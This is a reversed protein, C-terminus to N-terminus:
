PATEEIPESAYPDKKAAGWNLLLWRAILDLVSTARPVSPCGTWGDPAFRMRRMQAVVDEVSEGCQLRVSISTALANAMGRLLSGARDLVIFVEGLRGDPYVSATIYGKVEDQAAIERALDLMMPLAAARAAEGIGANTLMKDYRDRLWAEDISQAKFCFRETKGFRTMPLSERRHHPQWPEAPAPFGTRLQNVIYAGEVKDLWARAADGVLQQATGDNFHMVVKDLKRVDSV